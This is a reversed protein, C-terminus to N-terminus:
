NPIIDYRHSKVNRPHAWVSRPMAHAPAPVIPVHTFANNQDVSSVPIPTIRRSNYKDAASEISNTVPARSNQENLQGEPLSVLTPTIRRSPASANSGRFFLLLLVPFKSQWVFEFMCIIYTTVLDVSKLVVSNVMVTHVSVRVHEM